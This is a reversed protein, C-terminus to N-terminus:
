NSKKSAKAERKKAEEQLPEPNALFDLKDLDVTHSYQQMFGELEKLRDQWFQISSAVKQDELISDLGAEAQEALVEFGMCIFYYSHERSVYEIPSITVKTAFNIDTYLCNNRVIMWRGSRALLVVGSTRIMNSKSNVGNRRDAGSNICLSTAAAQVAKDLHNRLFKDLKKSDLEKPLNEAFDLKSLGFFIDGQAIQLIFLKGIEEIATMSLFCATSYQNNEFLGVATQLLEWANIITKQRALCITERIEPTLKLM